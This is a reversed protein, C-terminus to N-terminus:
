IERDDTNNKETNDVSKQKIPLEEMVGDKNINYRKTALDEAMDLRHTTLILMVNREEAYRKIMELQERILKDEVNGVPEDVIIVSTGDDIRYFVKSLALRRQQGTSFENFNKSALEELLKPNNFKLEKLTTVLREKEIENLESISWKGTIQHLVNTETGLDISPRFSIFEDGLNDVKEGNDLEIGYRNNIDGRKLYRLFTSKGAGSEGSLLVVDGRKMSFEPIKIISSYNIEGTEYNKKPYFKGKFNEIKMTDFSHTAGELPYVKEEMQKIIDDVKEKLDELEERDKKNNMINQIAGVLYGAAGKSLEIEALAKALSKGEIKGDENYTIRKNIYSGTIIAVAINMTENFVFQKNKRKELALIEKEAFDDIKSIQSEEDKKSIAENDLLDRYARRGLDRYKREEKRADKNLCTNLFKLGAVATTGLTILSANGNNKREDKNSGSIAGLMGLVGLGLSLYFAAKNSENRDLERQYQEFIDIVERQSMSTDYTIEKYEGDITENRIEKKLIIGDRTAQVIKTYKLLNTIKQRIEYNERASSELRMLTEQIIYRYESIDKIIKGVDNEGVLLKVHQDNFKDRTIKCLMDLGIAIQKLDSTKLKGNSYHNKIKKRDQNKNIEENDKSKNIEKRIKKTILEISIGKKGKYNKGKEKRVM